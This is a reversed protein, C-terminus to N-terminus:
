DAAQSGAALIRDLVRELEKELGRMFGIHDAQIVGQRDIIVLHPLGPAGYARDVEGRADLGVPFRYNDKELFARATARDEGVNAGILVVGKAKYKDYVRQLIPMELRCPACWSAWFDLMVVKGAYDALRISTGKELGELTFDTAKQGVLPSEQRATFTDTLEAGEPPSFVFTDPPIAEGARIQSHTEEVVFKTPASEPMLDRQKAIAKAMDIRIKKLLYSSADVWLDIDSEKQRLTVHHTKAGELAEDGVSEVEEVDTMLTKYADRGFLSLDRVVGAATIAMGPPGINRKLLEDLTGPAEEVTYQKLRPMYTYLKKGDSVLTIGNDGSELVLALKNPREVALSYRIETKQEKGRATASFVLTTEDRYTQLTEYAKATKRLIEEAEGSQEAAHGQSFCALLLLGAVALQVFARM